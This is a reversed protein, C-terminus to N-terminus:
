SRRSIEGLGVRFETSSGRVPAPKAAWAHGFVVELTLRIGDGGQADRYASEMRRFLGKGTLSGRRPVLANGSGSDRLESWLQRFNSYNVTLTEVDLVPDTFGCRLLADGLDHMDIFRPINDSIGCTRWASRLEIFSDPGLSSFLLPGGTKLVRACEKFMADPEGLWPLLLNSVVIDVSDTRLPIARADGQIHKERAFLRKRKAARRLMGLSRDLSVLEARRFRRRLESTLFGTGSGADVVTKPSLQMLAMRELLGTAVHVHAFSVKDFRPAIRNFRASIADPDFVSPERETM